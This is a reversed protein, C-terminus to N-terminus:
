VVTFCVKMLKCNVTFTIYYQLGSVELKQLHNAQRLLPTCNREGLDLPSRFDIRTEPSLHMISLIRLTGVVAHDPVKHEQGVLENSPLGSVQTGPNFHQVVKQVGLDGPIQLLFQYLAALHDPKLVVFDPPRVALAGLLRRRHAPQVDPLLNCYPCHWASYM